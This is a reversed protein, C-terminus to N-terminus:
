LGSHTECRISVWKTGIMTGPEGCVECIELSKIRATEVLDRCHQDGGNAYFRLEAFKEKVQVARFQPVDPSADLHKQIQSCLSDLLPRWGDGCAIEIEPPLIKPYTKQLKSMAHSKM